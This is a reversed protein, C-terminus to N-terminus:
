RMWGAMLVTSLLFPQAAVHHDCWTPVSSGSSLSQEVGSKRAFPARSSSRRAESSPSNTSPARWMGRSPPKQQSSPSRRHLGGARARNGPRPRIPHPSRRRRLSSRARPLSGSARQPRNRRWATRRALGARFVRRSSLLVQGFLPVSFVSHRAGPWPVNQPRATHCYAVKRAGVVLVARARWFPAGLLGDIM